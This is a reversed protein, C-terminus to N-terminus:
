SAQVLLNFMPNENTWVIRNWTNFVSIEGKFKLGEGKFNRIYRCTLPSYLFKFSFTGWGEANFNDFEQLIGKERFSGSHAVNLIFYFLTGIRIRPSFGRM